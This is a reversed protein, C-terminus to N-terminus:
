RIIRRQRTGSVDGYTICEFMGNGNGHWVMVMAVAMPM